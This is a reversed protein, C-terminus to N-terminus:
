FMIILVVVFDRSLRPTTSITFQLNYIPDFRAQKEGRRTEAWLFVTAKSSHTTFNLTFSAEQTDMWWISNQFSLQRRAEVVSAWKTSVPWGKSIGLDSLTEGLTQIVGSPTFRSTVALSYVMPRVAAPYPLSVVTPPLTHFLHSKAAQTFSPWQSLNLSSGTESMMWWYWDLSCHGSSCLDHPLLSFCLALCARIMKQLNTHPM